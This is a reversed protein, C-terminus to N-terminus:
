SNQVYRCIIQVTSHCILSHASFIVIESGVYLKYMDAVANFQSRGGEPVLMFRVPDAIPSLEDPLIITPTLPVKTSNCNCSSFIASVGYDLITQKSM